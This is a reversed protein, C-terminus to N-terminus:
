DTDFGVTEAVAGAVEMKVAAAYLTALGLLVCAVLYAAKGGASLRRRRLLAGSLQFSVVTVAFLAALIGPHRVQMRWATFYIAGFVPLSCWTERLPVLTSRLGGPLKALATALYAWALLLALLAGNSTREVLLAKAAREAYADGLAKENADPSDAALRYLAVASGWHKNTTEIDGLV